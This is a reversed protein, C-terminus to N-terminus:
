IQELGERMQLGPQELGASGSPASLRPSIGCARLLWRAPGRGRLALRELQEALPERPALAEGPVALRSLLALPVPLSCGGAGAAVPVSGVSVSGWPAANLTM